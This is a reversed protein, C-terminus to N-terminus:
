NLLIDSIDQWHMVIDTAINPHAASQQLTKDTNVMLIRQPVIDKLHAHIDIRDDVFIDVGLRKAIPAKDARERCFHVNEPKIGTKLYFDHHRLWSLTKEQTGSGCKSIIVIEQDYADVLAAIVDFCGVMPPTELYASSFFSTDGTDTATTIIVGGIDLGIKRKLRRAYNQSMKDTDETKMGTM